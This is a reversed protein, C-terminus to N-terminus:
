RLRNKNRRSQKVVEVNEQEQKSHNKNIFSQMQEENIKDKISIALDDKRHKIHESLVDIDVYEKLEELGERKGIELYSDVRNQKLEQLVSQPDESHIVLQSVGLRSYGNEICEAVTRQAYDLGSQQLKEKFAKQTLKEFEQDQEDIRLAEIKNTDSNRVYNRYDVVVLQKSKDSLMAKLDANLKTTAQKQRQKHQKIADAESKLQEKTKYSFGNAGLMKTFTHGSKTTIVHKQGSIEIKCGQEKHEVKRKNRGTGVWEIWEVECGSLKAPKNERKKRRVEKDFDLM